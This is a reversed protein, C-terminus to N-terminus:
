VWVDPDASAGVHRTMPEALCGGTGQIGDFDPILSSAIFDACRLSFHAAHPASAATGTRSDAQEEVDVCEVPAPVGPPAECAPAAEEDALTDPASEDADAVEPEDLAPCLPATSM